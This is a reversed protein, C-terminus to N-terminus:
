CAGAISRFFEFSALVIACSPGVKLVRPGIGGYLGAWGETVILNNLAALTGHARNGFSAGAVAGEVQARTKIVDFPHTTVAASAGAVLGAALNVSLADRRAGWTSALRTRMEEAVVWYLASFPVDRYLTAATGRWLSRWGDRSVARALVGIGSLPRGQARTQAMVQTRMLELPATGIVSVARAVTGSVLPVMQQPVAHQSIRAKLQEYITLYVGVSPICSAINSGTGRWLAPMGESRAITLMTKYANARQVTARVAHAHAHLAGAAGAEVCVLGSQPHLICCARLVSKDVGSLGGAPLVCSRPPISVNPAVQMRTKVVDFPTTALAAVVSSGIGSWLQVWVQSGPGPQALLETKGTSPARLALRRADADQQQPRHAPADNGVDPGAGSM